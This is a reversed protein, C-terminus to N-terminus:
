LDPFFWISWVNGFFHYCISPFVNGTREKLYGMILGPFFTAFRLFHLGMFTHALGFVLATIVIALLPGLMKRFMTQLWGRFFTEEVVAAVLGTVLLAFIKSGNVQRPLSQGPWCRSIFTLPILTILTLLAVLLVDNKTLRWKLGYRELDEKKWYCWLYPFYLMLGAIFTPIM